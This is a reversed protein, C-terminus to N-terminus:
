ILNCEKLNISVINNPVHSSVDQLDIILHTHLGTLLRFVNSKESSLICQHKPYIFIYTYFYYSIIEGKILIVDPGFQILSFFVFVNGM